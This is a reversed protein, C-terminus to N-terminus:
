QPLEGDKNEGKQNIIKDGTELTAGPQNQDLNIQNLKSENNQPINENNM